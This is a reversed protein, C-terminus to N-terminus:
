ICCQKTIAIFMLLLSFVYFETCRHPFSHQRSCIFFIMLINLFFFFDIVLSSDRHDEFSWMFRGQCTGLWWRGMLASMTELSGTPMCTCAASSSPFIFCFYFSALQLKTSDKFLHDLSIVQFQSLHLQSVIGIDFGPLFLNLIIFYQFRAVLLCAESRPQALCRALLVKTSDWSSETFVRLSSFKSEFSRLLLNFFFVSTVIMICHKITVFAGAALAVPTYMLLFCICPKPQFAHMWCIIGVDLCSTLNTFM